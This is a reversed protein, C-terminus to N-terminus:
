VLQKFRLKPRLDFISFLFIGGSYGFVNQPCSAAQSRHKGKLPKRLYLVDIPGDFVEWSMLYRQTTSDLAPAGKVHRQGM